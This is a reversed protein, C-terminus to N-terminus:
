SRTSCPMVADTDFEDDDSEDGDTCNVSVNRKLAWAEATRHRASEGSGSGPEDSAWPTYRAVPPDSSFILTYLRAADGTDSFSLTGDIGEKPPLM